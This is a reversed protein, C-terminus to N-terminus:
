NKKLTIITVDDRLIADHQINLLADHIVQAPSKNFELLSLIKMINEQDVIKRKEGTEILGDTFMILNDGKQISLKTSKYLSGPQFGLAIGHTEFAQTTGERVLYCFPHGANTVQLENKRHDLYALSFSVIVDQIKRLSSFLENNIKETILGTDIDEKYFLPRAMSSLVKLMATIFAPKVGHGSVDALMIVQSEDDIETIEYFDGGCHLGELPKYITDLSVTKSYMPQPSLLKKQFEGAQKINFDIIQQNKRSDLQTKYKKFSREIRDIMEANEWPKTILEQISASVAKQIEHMDSFATLLFLSIDPYLSHITSLLDSGKMLPMRLDSIVLFVSSHYTQLHKLADISFRFTCLEISKDEAWFEIERGLANLIHQEDDILLIQYASNNTKLAPNMYLIIDKYSLVIL